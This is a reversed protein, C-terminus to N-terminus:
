LWPLNETPSRDTCPWSSHFSPPVHSFLQSVGLNIMDLPDHLYQTVPDLRSQNSLRAEWPVLCDYIGVKITM